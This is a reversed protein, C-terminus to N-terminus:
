VNYDFNGFRRELFFSLVAIGEVGMDREKKNNNKEKPTPLLTLISFSDETISM